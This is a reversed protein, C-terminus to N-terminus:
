GRLRLYFPFTSWAWFSFEGMTKNLDIMMYNSVYCEVM